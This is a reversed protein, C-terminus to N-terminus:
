RRCSFVDPPVRRDEKLAIIEDLHAAATEDARMEDLVPEVASRIAALEDSTLEIFTLPSSCIGERLAGSLEDEQRTIEMQQPLTARATEMLARQHDPSLAELSATNALLVLPRPWLNLNTTFSQASGQYSNGVVAGTHAVLGDLGDLPNSERGQVAEAAGLIELTRLTADNRDSMVVAGAFDEPTRFDRTVGLMRRHPGPLVGLGTVGELGADRLMREPIGATFVAEQVDHSDILMPALLPEFAPIARAGVWALDVDGSAVADLLLQERDTWTDLDGGYQSIVDFVIAKDTRSRVDAAWAILQAPMDMLPNGVTLTVVEDSRADSQTTSDSDSSSLDPNASAEPSTEDAASCGSILIGIVAATAAARLPAQLLEM